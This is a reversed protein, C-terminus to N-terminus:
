PNAPASATLLLVMPIHPPPEIGNPKCLMSTANTESDNKGLMGRSQNREVGETIAAAIARKYLELQDIPLPTTDGELRRRFLLILMSLEQPSGCAEALFELLREM